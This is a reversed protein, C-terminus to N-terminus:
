PKLSRGGVRKLVVQLVVTCVGLGVLLVYTPLDSVTTPGLDIVRRVLRGDAPVAQADRSAGLDRDHDATCGDKVATEVDREPAPGAENTKPVAEIAEDHTERRGDARRGEASHREAEEMGSVRAEVVEREELALEKAELEEEEEEATAAEAVLDIEAPADTQVGAESLVSTPAKDPPGAFIEVATRRSSQSDEKNSGPLRRSNSDGGGRKSRTNFFSANEISASSSGSADRYSVITDRLEIRRMTAGSDPEEWARAGWSGNKSASLASGVALLDEISPEDDEAPMTDASNAPFENEGLESGNDSESGCRSSDSSNCIPSQGEASSREWKDVMGRVRGNANTSVRLRRTLRHESGAEGDALPLDLSSSSSVHSSPADGQGQGQEQEQELDSAPNGWIRGRLVNQRLNRAAALLASRWLMNVGLVKLSEDTWRLFARGSVGERRVWSAIDHAVREPLREGSRVRLARTLYVSLQSPTWTKPNLPLEGDPEVSLVDSNDTLYTPLTDARQRRLVADGGSESRQCHNPSPLPSPMPLPLEGTLSTSYRHGRYQHAHKTRSRPPTGPSPTYFYKSPTNHGSSNSRSLLATHTTTIAYPHPNPKLASDYKTPSGLPLPSTSALALSASM